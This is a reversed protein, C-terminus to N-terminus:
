ARSARTPLTVRTPRLALSTSGSVARATWFCVLNAMNGGSVLIGGCDRTYGILEAIWRVTQSEVETAAPSLTWAGVNPNLASALFDGLIGVARQFRITVNPVVRGSSDVAQAKLQLPQGVTVDPAAPTVVVRAVAPSQSLASSAFAVILILSTRRTGM